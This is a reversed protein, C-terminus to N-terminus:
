WCHLYVHRSSTLPTFVFAVTSSVVEVAALSDPGDPQVPAPATASEITAPTPAPSRASSTVVPSVTSNSSSDGGHHTPSTCAAVLMVIATGCIVRQRAVNQLSGERADSPQAFQEWGLGSGQVGPEAV